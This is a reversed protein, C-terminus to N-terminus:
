FLSINKLTIELIIPNIHNVNEDLLGFVKIYWSLFFLKSKTHMLNMLNLHHLMYKLSKLSRTVM